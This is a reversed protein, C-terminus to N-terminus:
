SYPAHWFHNNEGPVPKHPSLNGQQSSDQCCGSPLMMGKSLHTLLQVDQPCPCLEWPCGPTELAGTVNGQTEIAASPTAVSNLFCLSMEFAFVLAVTQM